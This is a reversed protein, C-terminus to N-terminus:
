YNSKYFKKESIKSAIIYSFKEDEYGLDAGKVEKHWKNRALRKSFHCWNSKEIPCTLSHPCPAIIHASKEILFQRIERIREFGRPTGPEIVILTKAVQFAKDISYQWDHVEGISYSFIAMDFTDNLTMSKFDMVSYSYSDNQILQEALKLLQPEKEILLAKNISFICEAALTATGPGSGIDIVSQIDSCALQKYQKFVELVAAFTAPLRFLLYALFDEEKMMYNGQISDLRYLQSLAKVKKSLENLSKGVILSEIVKIIKEPLM